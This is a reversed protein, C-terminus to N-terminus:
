KMDGTLQEVLSWFSQGPNLLEWTEVFPAGYVKRAQADMFQFATKVAKLASQYNGGEVVHYGRMLKEFEAKKRLKREESGTVMRHGYGQLFSDWCEPKNNDIRPPDIFMGGPQIHTFPSDLQDVLVEKTGTKWYDFEDFTADGGSFFQALMPLGSSFLRAKRVALSRTPRVIWDETVYNNPAVNVLTM